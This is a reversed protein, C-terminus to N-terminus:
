KYRDTDKKDISIMCCAGPTAVVSRETELIGRICEIMLAIVSEWGLCNQKWPPPEGNNITEPTSFL